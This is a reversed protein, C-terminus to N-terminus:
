FDTSAFYFAVQMMRSGYWSFMEGDVLQAPLGACEELHSEKFPFPESPLLVGEVGSSVVDEMSCEPYRPLDPWPSWGWWRLVDQIYADSGAWMWPSRWVAYAVKKFPPSFLARGQTWQERVDQAMKEGEPGCGVLHGLDALLAFAREVSRVDCVWCPIGAIELAMVDQADNEELNALVLDPRLDMIAALNVGKTGGVRTRERRLHDPRVCFKTLGVIREEAGLDVLTETLSPVLSVIRQPVGDLALPIGRDDVAVM